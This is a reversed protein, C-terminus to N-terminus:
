CQIEVAENLHLYFLYIKMEIKRDREKLKYIDELAKKYVLLQRKYRDSKKKDTKYDVIYIIDGDEFFLDIM